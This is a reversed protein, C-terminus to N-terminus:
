SKKYLENTKLCKTTTYVASYYSWFFGEKGNMFNLDIVYKKFFDFLTKVVIEVFSYKKNKKSKSRAYFSTYSNFKAFYDELSEYSYHLFSGKLNITKGSVIISEHVVNSNFNGKTKDFLRLFYRKSEYGYKFTKNLFVHQAKILCASIDDNNNLVQPIDNILEDTLIEDADLSLIWNNSTKSVAFQKQVGYGEFKNYFVKAGFEECIEITKDSSGSDIVIIEDAFKLKSLCKGIIKEENLTIIVVSIKKNM